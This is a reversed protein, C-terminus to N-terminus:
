TLWMEKRIHMGLKNIKHYPTYGNAAEKSALSLQAVLIIILRGSCSVCCMICMICMGPIPIAKPQEANTIYHM